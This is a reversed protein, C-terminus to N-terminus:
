ELTERGAPDHWGGEPMLTTAAEPPGWSDPGYFYLPTVNGLIPDVVRWSEEVADQRAFLTADGEIADGLLREYPDMEGTREYHALLEIREGVMAEGPKKVRTSVALVVEPSLR